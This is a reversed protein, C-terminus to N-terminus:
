YTQIVISFKQCPMSYFMVPRGQWGESRSPILYFMCQDLRLVYELAVVGHLFVERERHETGCDNRSGDIQPDREKAVGRTKGLKGHQIDSGKRIGGRNLRNVTVITVRRLSM